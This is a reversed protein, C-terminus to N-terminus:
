TLNHGLYEEIAQKFNGKEYYYNGNLNYAEALQHIEDSTKILLGNNKHKKSLDPHGCYFTINEREDVYECTICEIDNM